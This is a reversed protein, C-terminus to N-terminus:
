FTYVAAYRRSEKPNVKSLKWHTGKKSTTIKTTSKTIPISPFLPAGTFVLHPIPKLNQKPPMRQTEKWDQRQFDPLGKKFKPQEAPPRRREKRSHTLKEIRRLEGQEPLLSILGLLHVLNKKLFHYGRWLFLFFAMRPSMKKGLIM